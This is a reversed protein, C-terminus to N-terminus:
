KPIFAYGFTRFIPDDNYVYFGVIRGRKLVDERRHGDGRVEIAKMGSPLPIFESKSNGPLNLKGWANDPHDVTPPTLWRVQPGDVVYGDDESWPLGNVAVAVLVIAVLTAVGLTKFLGKRYAGGHLGILGSILGLVILDPVPNDWIWRGLGMWTRTDPGGTAAYWIYFGVCAVFLAITWGFQRAV